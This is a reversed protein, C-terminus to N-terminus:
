RRYKISGMDEYALYEPEHIERGEVHRPSKVQQFLSVRINM